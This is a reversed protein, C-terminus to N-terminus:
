RGRSQLFPIAIGAEELERIASRRLRERMWASLSIGARSAADEFAQKEVDDVRVKIWTSKVPKKM